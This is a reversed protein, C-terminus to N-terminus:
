SSARPKAADGDLDSNSPQWGFGRLELGFAGSEGYVALFCADIADAAQAVDTGIAARLVREKGWRVKQTVFRWRSCFSKFNRTRVFDLWGAIPYDLSLMDGNIGALLGNSTNRVTMALMSMSTGHQRLHELERILDSRASANM